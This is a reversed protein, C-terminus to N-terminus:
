LSDLFLSHRWYERESWAGLHSRPQWCGERRDRREDLGPQLSRWMPCPLSKLQWRCRPRARCPRRCWSWDPLLWHSLRPQCLRSWCHLLWCPRCARWCLLSHPCRLRRSSWYILPLSWWPCGGWWRPHHTRPWLSRLHSRCPWRLWPMSSLGLLWWLPLAVQWRWRLLLMPSRRRCTDLRFWSGRRWGLLM